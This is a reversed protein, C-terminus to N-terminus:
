NLNKFRQRCIRERHQPEFVHKIDREVRLARDKFRDRDRAYMEWPGKRAAQYAYSWKIMPHIECLKDETAFKVKKSTDAGRCFDVEDFDSINEVESDDDDDEANEDGDQEFVVFSDESECFSPAKPLHSTSSDFGSNDEKHDEIEGFVIFSDESDTISYIRTRPLPSSSRITVLMEIRNKTLRVDIYPIPNPEQQPPALLAVLQPPAKPERPVGSGPSFDEGLVEPLDNYFM